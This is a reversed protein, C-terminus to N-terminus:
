AEDSRANWANVFENEPIRTIPYPNTPDKGTTTTRNGNHNWSWGNPVDVYWQNGIYEQGHVVLAHYSGYGDKFESIYGLDVSAVM